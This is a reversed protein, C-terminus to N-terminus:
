CKKGLFRVYAFMPSCLRVNEEIGLGRKDTDYIFFTNRDSLDKAQGRM